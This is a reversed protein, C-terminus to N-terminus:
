AYSRRLEHSMESGELLRMSWRQERYYNGLAKVTDYTEHRPDIPAAFDLSETTRSSTGYRRAIANANSVSGVSQVQIEQTIYRGRNDRSNPDSTPLDYSGVIPADTASTDVVIWKNPKAIRDDSVVITDELVRGDPGTEYVHDPTESGDAAKPRRFQLVGRNDFYPSYFGASSGVELLITRETTGPPFVLADKGIQADTVDTEYGEPLEYPGLRQRIVDVVHSRGPITVVRPVGVDIVPTQDTLSPQQVSGYSYLPRPNDAFLFIGLPWSTGDGLLMHVSIQDSLTNVDNRVSPVLELGTLTRKVTRNMNNEMVPASDSAVDLEGLRAHTHDLLTFRFTAQRQGTALDLLANRVVM